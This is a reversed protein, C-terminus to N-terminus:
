CVSGGAGSFHTPTGAGESDAIFAMVHEASAAGSLYLIDAALDPGIEQTMQERLAHFGGADQLFVRKGGAELRGTEVTMAALLPDLNRNDM